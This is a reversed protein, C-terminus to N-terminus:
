LGINVLRRITAAADSFSSARGAFLKSIVMLHASTEHVHEAAWVNIRMLRKFASRMRAIIAINQASALLCGDRQAVCQSDRM